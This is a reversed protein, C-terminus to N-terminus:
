QRIHYDLREYFTIGLKLPMKLSINLSFIYKGAISTYLIYLSINESSNKSADQRGSKKWLESATKLFKKQVSITRKSQRLDSFIRYAAFSFATNSEANRSVFRWKNVVRANRRTMSDFLREAHKHSILSLSISISNCLFHTLLFNSCM